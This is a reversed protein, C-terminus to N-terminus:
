FDVQWQEGGLAFDGWVKVALKAQPRRGFMDELQSHSAIVFDSGSRIYYRHQIDDHKLLVRHPPLPSEPVLIAAFGAATDSDAPIWYGDLGQVAPDTTHAGLELVNKLFAQINAIPKLQPPMEDKIGWLLVGGGSNAFGSIAKALNRKDPEDLKPTRTDHK